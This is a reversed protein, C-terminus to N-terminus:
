GRETETEIQKEQKPEATVTDSAEKAQSFFASGNRFFYAEDM